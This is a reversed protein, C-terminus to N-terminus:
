GDALRVGDGVLWYPGPCKQTLTDVVAPDVVQVLAEAPFEGGGMRIKAGVPVKRQDKEDLIWLTGMNKELAYGPPWIPVYPTGAEPMDMSLCGEREELTGVLLAQMVDRVGDVPKQLPFVIGEILLPEEEVSNCGALLGVALALMWSYTCLPKMPNSLYRIIWKKPKTKSGEGAKIIGWADM